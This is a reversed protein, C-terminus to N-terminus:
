RVAIKLPRHDTLGVWQASNVQSQRKLYLYPTDNWMDVRGRLNDLVIDGRDTRVTLVAHGEGNTQRVVTILLTSPPWGLAILDRRKALAYDECDGYGQPYAWYEVTNYLDQDSVPIVAANIEANIRLLQQWRADTLAQVAVPEANRGCEGVQEACFQAAGMPISTQGTEPTFVNAVNSAHAPM